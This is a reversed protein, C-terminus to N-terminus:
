VFSLREVARCLTGESMRVECVAFPGRGESLPYGMVERRARRRAAEEGERGAEDSASPRGRSYPVASMSNSATVSPVMTRHVGFRRATDCKPIDKRVPEVSKEILDTSYANM